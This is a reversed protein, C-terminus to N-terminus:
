QAPLLHQSLAIPPPPPLSLRRGRPETWTPRLCSLEPEDGCGDSQAGSCSPQTHHTQAIHAEEPQLSQPDLGVRPCVQTGGVGASHMINLRPTLAPSAASVPGLPLVYTDEAERYIM